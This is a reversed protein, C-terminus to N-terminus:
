TAASRSDRWGRRTLMLSYLTMAMSIILCTTRLVARSPFLVGPATGVIIALALVMGGRAFSRSSSSAGRQRQALFSAGGSFLALVLVVVQPWHGV